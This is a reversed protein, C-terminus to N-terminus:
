LQVKGSDPFRSADDVYYPNVAETLVYVRSHVRTLYGNALSKNTRRIRPLIAFMKAMLENIKQVYITMAQHHGIAWYAIWHPLSQKGMRDTRPPGSLHTGVYRWDKPRMSTFRNVEGVTAFGSADDTTTMLWRMYVRSPSINVM